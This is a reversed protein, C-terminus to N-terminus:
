ALRQIAFCKQINSRASKLSKRSNHLPSEKHFVRQRENNTELSECVGARVGDAFEGLRKNEAELAELKAQLERIRKSQMEAFMEKGEIMGELEAIRKEYYPKM